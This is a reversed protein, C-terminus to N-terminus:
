STLAHITFTSSILTAAEVVLIKSCSSKSTTSNSVSSSTSQSSIPSTGSGSKHSKLFQSTHSGFTPSISPAPLQTSTHRSFSPIHPFGPFELSNLTLSPCNKPALRVHISPSSKETLTLYPRARYAHHHILKRRVRRYKDESRALPRGEDTDM